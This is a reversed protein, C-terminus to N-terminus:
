QGEDMEAHFRTTEAHAIKDCERIRAKPRSYRSHVKQIARDAGAYYELEDQFATRAKPRGKIQDRWNAPLQFSM